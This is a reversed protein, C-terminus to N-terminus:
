PRDGPLHLRGAARVGRRHRQAHVGVPDRDAYRKTRHRGREPCLEDAHGQWRRAGRPQHLRQRHQRHHARLSRHPRASQRRRLERLGGRLRNTASRCVPINQLDGGTDQGPPVGVRGGILYAAVLRSRMEADDDFERRLLLNLHVAGQSHGILIFPRGQNFHAMYYAFADRVDGYALAGAPGGAASGISSFRVQRYLPAYTNCVERFRAFQLHLVAVEGRKDAAMDLDNTGEGQAGPVTPYIYFCDVAADTVPESKAVSSRGDSEIVTTDLDVLLCDNREAPLDPRCMWNEDQAYLDGHFDRYKEPVDQAPAAAPRPDDAPRSSAPPDDSCATALLGLLVGLAIARLRM